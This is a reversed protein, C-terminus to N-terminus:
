TKCKREGKAGVSDLRVSQGRLVNGRKRVGVLNASYRSGALVLAISAYIAYGIANFIEHSAFGQWAILGYINNAISVVFIISLLWLHWDRGIAGTILLMLGVCCTDVTMASYYYPAYSDAPLGAFAMYHLGQIGAYVIAATMMTASLTSIGALMIAILCYATIM